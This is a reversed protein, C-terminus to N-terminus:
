ELIRRRAWWRYVWYLPPILAREYTPAARLLQGGFGRKFRYVGWLGDSRKEFQAELTEEDADPVGWLDYQRCGHAAAWRMACMQLLYTPMRNREEDNSAGYFYWARTGRAFAMLGALPRGHYRAILLEVNGWPHFLDYARQYYALSHVGFGDRQATVQMLRQFEELDASPQVEVEKREALRINYRTKQKMRDLWTTEAGGLDVVITRRPQVPIGDSRFGTFRADMEETEDEWADPEVKLLVARHSRCARLVEPWLGRWDPGVPGKPIYALSLGLPLKRFLVQAGSAGSIVRVPQWGFQSKLEGWASSQLLHADPYKKLFEDWDAASLITM